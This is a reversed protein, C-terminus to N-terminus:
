SVAVIIEKRHYLSPHKHYENERGDLLFTSFKCDDFKATIQQDKDDPDIEIIEGDGYAACWVEDGVQFKSM